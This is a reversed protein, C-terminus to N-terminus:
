PHSKVAEALQGKDNCGSIDEPGELAFADVRYGKEKIITLTDASLIRGYM